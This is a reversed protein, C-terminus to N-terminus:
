CVLGEDPLEGRVLYRDVADAICGNTRRYATHGQGDYTLLHGSELQEALSIAGEYPTAPDHTTGIVLIPAAGSADLPDTRPRSEVPWLDCVVDSYAFFEGFTPSAKRLEDAEAEMAEPDAEVPEDLCNVANIAALLNSEYTGDQSRGARLDALFLLPGGDGEKMAASLAETLIPWWNEPPAALALLIASVAHPQTLERDSKTPLPSEALRDLFGQIQKVGDDVNGSLPCGSRGLCEEVYARLAAEFGSVQGIREERTELTPDVAGDLVFRGVRGPFLDAYTAGLLTGYSYGLFHLRPDGLVERLIDMDRAASVTDVFELLRGSNEECAAVFERSDARVEELDAEDDIDYVKARLEDLEAPGLCVVPTSEGVGRPDFGVVDFAELVPQGLTDPAAEIFEVGSVGPGGPNVLLSGIRNSPAQSPLRKLALTIREGDPDDYDMPVEVTACEFSQGCDSWAVDQEYYSLLDEQVEGDVDSSTVTPVPSLGPQWRAWTLGGVVLLLVAVAAALLAARSRRAPM